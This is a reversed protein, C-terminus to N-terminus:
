QTIWGGDIRISQGTIFGAHNSLLFTVLEAFEVPDARRKLAQKSLVFENYKEPDPHIKEADTRFAGPSVANVTIGHPGLERAWVRTFGILAGKSGVYASLEEMGMDFTNSAINIVRGQGISVMGPLCVQVLSAAAIANVSFVAAIEAVDVTSVSAKPYIAANNVLGYFPGRAKIEEVLIPQLLQPQALDAAITVFNESGVRQELIAADQCNRVLGCVRAGSALLTTVLASGLGGAAGTVLIRKGHLNLM